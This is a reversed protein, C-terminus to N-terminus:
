SVVRQRGNQQHGQIALAAWEERTTVFPRAQAGNAAGERGMAPLALERRERMDDEDLVNSEDSQIAVQENTSGVLLRLVNPTEEYDNKGAGYGVSCIKLAPVPGFASTVTSIIAAGVPTVTEACIHSGYVPVGGARLMEVTVPSLTPEM